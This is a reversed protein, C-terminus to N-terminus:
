HQRQDDEASVEELFYDGGLPLGIVAVIILPARGLWDLPENVLNRNSLLAVALSAGIGSIMGILGVTNNLQSDESDKLGSIVIVGGIPHMVCNKHLTAGIGTFPGGKTPRLSERLPETTKRGAYPWCTTPRRWMGGPAQASSGYM